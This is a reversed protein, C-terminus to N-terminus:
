NSISYIMERLVDRFVQFEDILKSNDILYQYIRELGVKDKAKFLLSIQIVLTEPYELYLCHEHYRGLSENWNELCEWWRRCKGSKPPDFDPLWLLRFLEVIDDDALLDTIYWDVFEDSLEQLSYQKLCSKLTLYTVNNTSHGVLYDHLSVSISLYAYVNMHKLERYLSPFLQKSTSLALVSLSTNLFHLIFGRELDKKSLIDRFWSVHFVGYDIARDTVMDSHTVIM